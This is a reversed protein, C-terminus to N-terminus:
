TGATLQICIDAPKLGITPLHSRASTSSKDELSGKSCNGVADLADVITTKGTGNEGFLLVVPKAKDFDLELRTSAGRYNEITLHEVKAM